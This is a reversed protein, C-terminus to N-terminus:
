ASPDTHELTTMILRLYGKMQLRCHLRTGYRTRWRTVISSVSGSRQLLALRTGLSGGGVEVLNQLAALDLRLSNLNLDYAM